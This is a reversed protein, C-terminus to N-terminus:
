KVVKKSQIRTDTTTTQTDGPSTPGGYKMVILRKYFEPAILVCFLVAMSDWHDIVDTANTLLLHGSIYQGAYTGIKAGSIKGDESRVLDNFDRRLGTRRVDPENM